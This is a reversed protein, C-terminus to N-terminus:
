EKLQVLKLMLVCCVFSQESLVKFRDGGQGPHHLFLDFQYQFPGQTRDSLVRFHHDGGEPDNLPLLVRVPLAELSLLARAEKGSTSGFLPFFLAHRDQGVTDSVSNLTVLQLRSTLALHPQDLVQFHDSQYNQLVQGDGFSKALGHKRRMVLDQLMEDVQIMFFDSLSHAFIFSDYFNAMKM